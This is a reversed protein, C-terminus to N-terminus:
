MRPLVETPSRQWMPCAAVEGRMRVSENDESETANDNLVALFEQAYNRIFMKGLGQILGFDSIKRPLVSAMESIAEDSCIRQSRGTNIRSDAKLRDRLEFLRGRLVANAEM